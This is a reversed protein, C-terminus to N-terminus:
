AAHTPEESKPHPTIGNLFIKDDTAVAVTIEDLDKSAHTGMSNIIVQKRGTEYQIAIVRKAVSPLFGVISAIEADDWSPDLNALLKRLQLINM